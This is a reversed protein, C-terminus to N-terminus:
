PCAAWIGRVLDCHRGVCNCACVRYPHLVPSPTHQAWALEGVRIDTLGAPSDHDLACAEAVAAIFLETISPWPRGVRDLGTVFPLCGSPAPSRGTRTEVLVECFTEKTTASFIVQVFCSETHFAGATPMGCSLM